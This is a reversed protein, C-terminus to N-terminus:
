KTLYAVCVMITFIFESFIALMPSVGFFLIKIKERQLFKTPFFALWSFTVFNLFLNTMKGWRFNGQSLIQHECYYFRCTFIPKRLGIQWPTNKVTKGM